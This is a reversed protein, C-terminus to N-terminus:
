VRSFIHGRLVEMRHYGRADCQSVPVLADIRELVWEAVCDKQGVSVWSTCSWWNEPPLVYRERPPRETNLLYHAEQKPSAIGGGFMRIYADLARYEQFSSGVTLEAWVDIGLNRLRRRMPGLLPGGFVHGATFQVRRQACYVKLFDGFSGPLKQGRYQRDRVGAFNLFALGKFWWVELHMWYPNHIGM